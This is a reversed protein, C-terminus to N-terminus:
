RVRELQVFEGPQTGWLHEGALSFGREAQWLASASILGDAGIGIKYGRRESFIICRQPSVESRWEWRNQNSARTWYVECGENLSPSLDVLTLAALRAPDGILDRKDAPAALSWTQQVVSDPGTTTLQLVRQRYLQQDDGSNLQLYVWEGDGLGPLRRRRDTLKNDTDTALTTFDGTMLIALESDASRPGMLDPSSSCASILAVVFGIGM